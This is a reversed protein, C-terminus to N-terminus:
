LWPESSRTFRKMLTLKDDNAINKCAYEYNRNIIFHEDNCRGARTHSKMFEKENPSVNGSDWSFTDMMSYYRRAM